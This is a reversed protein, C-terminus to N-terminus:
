LPTLQEIKLNYCDAPFVYKGGREDPDAQGKKFFTAKQYFDDKSIYGIIWGQSHDGYVSTFLYYECRQKTNYNYVTCNHWTDPKVNREKAKIEFLKFKDSIWDFDYSLHSVIRGGLTQEVMIDSIM